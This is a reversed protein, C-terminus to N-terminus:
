TSINPLHSLHSLLNHAVTLPAPVLNTIGPLKTMGRRLPYLTCKNESGIGVKRGEKRTYCIPQLGCFVGRSPKTGARSQTVLDIAVGKSPFPRLYQHLLSVRCKQVSKGRQFFRHSERALRTLLKRMPFGSLFFCCPSLATPVTETYNRNLQM